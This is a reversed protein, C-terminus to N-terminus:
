PACAPRPAAPGGPPTVKPCPRPAPVAPDRAPARRRGSRGGPAHVSRTGPPTPTSRGAPSGSGAGDRAGASAMLPPAASAAAHAARSTAPSGGRRDPNPGANGEQAHQHDPASRRLWIGSLQSLRQLRDHRLRLRGSKRPLLGPVKVQRIDGRRGRCSDPARHRCDALRTM